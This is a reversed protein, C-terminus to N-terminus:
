PKRKSVQSSAFKHVQLSYEALPKQVYMPELEYLEDKHTRKFKEAGLLAINLASPRNLAAPAISVNSLQALRDRYKEVGAGIVLVRDESHHLEELLAEIARSREDNLKAGNLFMAYYVLNRRDPLLVYVKGNWFSANRAYAEANPLGVLPIQLSRALGKATAMGIRLGTFSGPGMSVAILKLEHKKIENLSLLQEVAPILKEAQSMTASFMLEGIPEQDRCLGVSGQETATDIGLTLMNFLIKSLSPLAKLRIVHKSSLCDYTIM